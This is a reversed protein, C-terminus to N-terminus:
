YSLVPTSSGRTCWNDHWRCLQIAVNPLSLRQFCILTFGVGLYSIGGRLPVLSGQFVVLNIPQTHFHPLAHLKGTSIPRSAQGYFKGQEFSQSANM